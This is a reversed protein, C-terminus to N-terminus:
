IDFGRLKMGAIINLQKNYLNDLIDGGESFCREDVKNNFFCVVDEIAGMDMSSVIDSFQMIRQKLISEVKNKGYAHVITIYHEKFDPVLKKLYDLKEKETPM